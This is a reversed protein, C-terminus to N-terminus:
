PRVASIEAKGKKTDWCKEAFFLLPVIHTWHQQLPIGMDIDAPLIILRASIEANM